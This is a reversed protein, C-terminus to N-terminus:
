RDSRVNVVKSGRDAPRLDDAILGYLTQYGMLSKEYAKTWFADEISLEYKHGAITVSRKKSNPSRM